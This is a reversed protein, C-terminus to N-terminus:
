LTVGHRFRLVEHMGVGSDRYKKTIETRVSIVPRTEHARDLDTFFISIQTRGLIATVIHM